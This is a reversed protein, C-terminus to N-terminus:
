ERHIIFGTEFLYDDPNWATMKHTADDLDETLVLWIKAGYPVNADPDQPLSGIDTTGSLTIDGNGDTTGQDILIYGTNWPDLYYILSYETSVQPARGNFSYDFSNGIVNYKLTGVYDDHLILWKDDTSNKNELIREGNLQQAQVEVSFAMIDTQAWDATKESLHYSQKVTMYAGPPLMGLYIWKSEIQAVTVTEDYIGQWWLPDENADVYVEVWLDYLIWRHIDNKAEGNNYTDYWQREAPTIGNEDCTINYIHKYLDVPNYGINKIKFILYGTYCPKIDNLVVTMDGDVEIEVAGATFQFRGVQVTHSFLAVAGSVALLLATALIAILVTKRKM